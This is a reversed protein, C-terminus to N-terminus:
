QKQFRVFYNAQMFKREEVLRFGEAEVERIVTEKGARVHKLIRESSVGPIREFDIVRSYASAGCVILKPQHERALREMQEYDITEDDRRM